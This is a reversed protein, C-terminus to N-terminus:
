SISVYKIGGERCRERESRVKCWWYRGVLYGEERGRERRGERKERQRGKKRGEPGHVRFELM